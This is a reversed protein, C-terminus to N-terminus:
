TFVQLDALLQSASFGNPAKNTAVDIADQSLVSFLQGGQSPNCYYGVASFPMSGLMAWTDIIIGKNTYGVGCIAHGNDPNPPGSLSWTFGSEMTDMGAVFSDPMELTMVLNEFLWLGAMVETENTADIAVYGIIKHEGDPGLGQDHWYNLFTLEDMGSDQGDTLQYYLSVASAANLDPSAPANANAILVSGIHFGAAVVCDGNDDNGFIDALATAAKASYDMTAPPTPLTALLYNKLSLTPARVKPRNRGLKYKM